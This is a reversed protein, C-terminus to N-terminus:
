KRSPDVVRGMFLISGSARDRILFLFPRNATFSPASDVMEVATAATAVVGKEDVDLTAEHIVQNIWGVPGIGTFDAGSAFPVPMGMAKLDDKLHARHKLKLRPLSVAVAHPSLKAIFENLAGPNLAAEISTLSENVDPLVAIFSARHGRYPLELMSLKDNVFYSFKGAESMMPIKVTRDISVHFDANRTNEPPFPQAWEGKSYIANTLVLTTNATLDQKEILEKIKTRTQQSTWDNITKRAVERGPASAYDLVQISTGYFEHMDRLFEEEMVIGNRPWLANAVTMEFGDSAATLNRSLNFFAPNLHRSAPFRLVRAMQEATEGCAGDYTMALAASISYPSVIINGSKGSLQRYLDIAFEANSQALAKAAADLPPPQVPGPPAVSVGSVERRPTAPADGTKEENKEGCGCTLAIAALATLMRSM